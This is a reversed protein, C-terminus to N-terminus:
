KLYINNMLLAKENHHETKPLRCLFFCEKNKM